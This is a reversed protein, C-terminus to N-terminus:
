TAIIIEKIHDVLYAESKGMVELGFFVLNFKRKELYKPELNLIKKLKIKLRENLAEMVCKDRIKNNMINRQKIRITYNNM